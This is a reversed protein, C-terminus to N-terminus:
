SKKLAQIAKITAADVTAASPDEKKWGVWMLMHNYLAGSMEQVVAAETGAQLLAVAAAKRTAETASYHGSHKNVIESAGKLADEVSVEDVESTTETVIEDALALLQKVRPDNEDTIGLSKLLKAHDAGARRPDSASYWVFGDAETVKYYTPKAM